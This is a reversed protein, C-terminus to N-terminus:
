ITSHCSNPATSRARKPLTGWRTLPQRFLENIQAPTRNLPLLQYTHHKLTLQLVRQGRVIIFKGRWGELLNIRIGGKTPHWTGEYIAAGYAFSQIRAFSGRFYIIFPSYPNEMVRSGDFAWYELASAVRTDSISCSSIPQPPIDNHDRQRAIPRLYLCNEGCCVAYIIISCILLEKLQLDKM